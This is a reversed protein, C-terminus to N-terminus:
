RSSLETVNHLVIPSDPELSNLEKWLKIAEKFDGQRLHVLALNNLHAGPSPSRSRAQKFHDEAKAFFAKWEISRSGEASQTAHEPNRSHLGRSCWKSRNASARLFCDRAENYNQAKLFGVGLEIEQDAEAERRRAEADDIWTTGHRM